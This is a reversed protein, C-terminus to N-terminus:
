IGLHNFPVFTPDVNSCQDIHLGSTLSHSVMRSNEPELRAQDKMSDAFTVETLREKEKRLERPQRRQLARARRMDDSVPNFKEM